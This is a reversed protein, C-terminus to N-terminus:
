AVEAKIGAYGNEEVELALDPGGTKIIRGEAMIHVLDPVIHNLLRQYHTIVLFSRNADRLANVGESVLKMADVDLGSDTEDLICMRPEMVSMQLIENRKKEGGSFGVNIPRKLMEPEMKLDRAKERVLKLFEAASIEEEGRAKRQANVATRLFTMNGVGPIEVPYQFAMFLGAAARDEPDMALIDVGDLTASGETVTYGERGALVYSLTSKGSGNPGMIAHVKGAGVSLDVGKLITKEEQELDVHLNKIELM